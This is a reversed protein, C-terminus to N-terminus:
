GLKSAITGASRLATGDAGQTSWHVSPRATGEAILDDLLQIFPVAPSAAEWLYKSLSGPITNIENILLDGAPEDWLFDIRAVGRLGVLAALARGCEIVRAEVHSPLNAPLERPASAMGEGGVYKDAYGLIGGKGGAARVPKEIPSLSLQPWARVSVQVDVADGRWPEAIAGARLHVSQSALALAADWDAVVEIGISSGGFRPKIIYPPDFAPKSDGNQDVAVRPLTPLGASDVVSGFALKDMGLAAGAASPGAYTIGSLDLAGQLSGDEGPGGHCCVLVVGTELTKGPRGLRGQSVFGEGVVLRLPSGGVADGGKLFAAAELDAAVEGFEGTKSWYIARVNRGAAALARAAQLGTLISIDHEPSPGGFLVTVADSM